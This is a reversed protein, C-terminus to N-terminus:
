SHGVLIWLAAGIQEEVISEAAEGGISAFIHDMEFRILPRGGGPDVHNGCRFKSTTTESVPIPDVQACFLPSFRRVGQRLSGTLSVGESAM